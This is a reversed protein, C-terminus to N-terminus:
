SWVTIACLRTMPMMKRENTTTVPMPPMTLRAWAVNTVAPPNAPPHASLRSQPTSMGPMASWPWILKKQASTMPVMAAAASPASKAQGSLLSPPTVSASPVKASANKKEKTGNPVSAIPLPWSPHVIRAGVRSM